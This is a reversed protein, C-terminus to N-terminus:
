LRRLHTPFIEPTYAYIGGFTGNMFFSLCIGAVAIQWTADSLAMGIASLGGLIMYGRLQPRVVSASM